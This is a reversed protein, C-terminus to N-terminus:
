QSRRRMSITRCSANVGIRRTKGDWSRDKSFAPRDSYTGCGCTPRFHREVMKTNLPVRRQRQRQTLKFQDPTYYPYLQGCKSCFSCTCRTMKEPIDCAIAFV